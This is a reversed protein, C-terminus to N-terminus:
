EDRRKRYLLRRVFEWFDEPREEGQIVDWLYGVTIEGQVTPLGFVYGSARATSRVAKEIDGEDVAAKYLARGSRVLETTVTTVPGGRVQGFELASGVERVFPVTALPWLAIKKGTWEWWPEDEEPGRDALIEGLVVPAVWFYWSRALLWPLNRLLEGERRSQAVDRFLARQRNYIMSFFSYFMTFSKKLEGGRRAAALDKAAGSGLTTRIVKDAFQVAAQDIDLEPTKKVTVLATKSRSINVTEGDAAKELAIRAQQYAGHWAPYAVIADTMAIGYFAFRQADAVLGTKGELRRVAENVDREFNTFRHRMEGSKGRVADTMKRPDALFMRISGMLRRGSVFEAVNAFNAFNQLIVTSKMGLAAITANRRFFGVVREVGDGALPNRNNAIYKLWPIFLDTYEDGLRERMATEVDRNRLLEYVSLLAERHSLDHIVQSLKAPIISIRLDLPDRVNEARAITHGHPTHAREYGYEFLVIQAAAPNDQFRASRSPGRRDYVLPYYGGAYEKTKGNEFRRTFARPPVKPPAIGSLRQELEAVQPWLSEFTDWIEQVMDWDSEDLQDLIENVQDPGWQAAGRQKGELLRQLNSENGTNLAIAIAKERTMELGTSTRLTENYIRSRRDKPLAEFIDKLRQAYEKALDNERAQAAAIPQWVMRNWPGDLRNGDLWRVIEEINLLEADIWRFTKGLRQVRTRTREDFPAPTSPLNEEISAVLEGVAQEKNRRKGSDLLTNKLRALKDINKLADRLLTLEEFTLENFHRREADETLRDDIVVDQNDLTAAAIWERLRHRRRVAKPGGTSRRFDFQELLDNAAALYDEGAKGLRKQAPTATMRQLFRVARDATARADAAERFLFYNFLRTLQEDYARELNGKAAAELARRAASREQRLYQAPRIEGVPKQAVIGRAHDRIVDRDVPERQPRLGQKVLARQLFRIESLIQSARRESHAARFAQEALRSKEQLLDPFRDELREQVESALAQRYPRARTLALLLDRGSGRFGFFQVVEDPDLGGNRQYVFPRPLAELFDRGHLGAIVDRSLRMPQGDEDKLGAPVDSEDIMSGNQLYWLAAYLPNEALEARVENEIGQREERFWEQVERGQEEVLQARLDDEAGQRAVEVAKEYTAWEAETMHEKLPAFPLYEQIKETAAIEEESALMRDFVGRIEDSVEVGLDLATRYVKRLWLRLRAFPGILDASPAKGELMYAEFAGAWREKHADTIQERSELGLWRLATEFDERLQAPADKRAAIVDILEFYFHALEHVATSADANKFLEIDFVRRDPGFTIQGRPGGHRAQFLRRLMNIARSSSPLEAQEAFRDVVRLAEEPSKGEELRLRWYEKRLAEDLAEKVATAEEEDITRSEERVAARKAHEVSEFSTPVRRFGEIQDNWVRLIYRGGPDRWISYTVDFTPQSSPRSVDTEGQLVPAFGQARLRRGQSDDVEVGPRQWRIEVASRVIEVRRAQFLRRKPGSPALPAKASWKKSPGTPARRAEHRTAVTNIAQALPSAAAARALAHGRSLGRVTAAQETGDAFRIQVDVEVPMQEDTLDPLTTAAAREVARRNLRRPLHNLQQVADGDMRTLIGADVAANIAHSDAGRIRVTFERALDGVSTAVGAETMQRSLTRLRALHIRGVADAEKAPRGADLMQKRVSEFVEREDAAFADTDEEVIALEARQRRPGFEAVEAISPMGQYLRIHDHLDVAKETTAIRELYRAVPIVLEGATASAEAYQKGGDDLVISAVQAAEDGYIRDWQQIPVYVNEVPGGQEQQKEVYSRFADPSRQLLKSKRASDTMAELRARYTEARRTQFAPGALRFPALLGGGVVMSEFTQTAVDTIREWHARVRERPDGMTPALDLDDATASAELAVIAAFEQGIETAVEAGTAAAADRAYRRLARRFTQRELAQAVRNGVIRRGLARPVFLRGVKGLGYVELAAAAGGGASAALVATDPDVGASVMERYMPGAEQIYSYQFLGAGGGAVAGAAAAAPVTAIEEPVAIQPGVQGAVAAAAAGAGAGAVVGRGAHKVGGVIQAALKSAGILGRELFGEEGYYRNLANQELWRIRDENSEPDFGFKEWVEPSMQQTTRYGYEVQGRGGQQFAVIPARIAWAIGRLNAVDDVVMPAHEPHEQLWAKLGPDEDAFVEANFDHSRLRKELRELNQDVFPEPLLTRSGVRNIRAQRDPDRTGRQRLMVDLRDDEERALGAAAEDYQNGSPALEEHALDDLVADYPNSAVPRVGAAILREDREGTSM